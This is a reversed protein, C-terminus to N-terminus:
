TTFQLLKQLFKEPNEAHIWHGANEIKELAYNPFHRGILVSDRKRIYSSNEGSLFLTPGKFSYNEPLARGIEYKNDLFVNINPKLSLTNDSERKLNKLLFLRLDKDKINNELIKEADSRSNLKNSQLQKLSDLIKDHHPKYLKPSIDVVVLNKVLHPYKSAFQMATKGGMSHGILIVEKLGQDDFYNKLDEVMLEYTFNISHPSKGHNRADPLHIEYNKEALKKAISKWNDGMGLFGHLIVIPYGKGLIQTHLKM